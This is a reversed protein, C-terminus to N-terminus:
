RARGSAPIAASLLGLRRDRIRAQRFFERGDPGLLVGHRAAYRSGLARFKVCGDCHCGHEHGTKSV